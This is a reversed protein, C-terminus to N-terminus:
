SIADRGARWKAEEHEAVEEARRIWTNIEDRNSGYYRLATDVLAPELELYAAAEAISGGNDRVVGIIEWVDLGCGVVAARRGMPGDVFHIGPHESMLLGERLYREALATKPQAEHRSRRELLELTRRDPRISLHGRAVDSSVADCKLVIHALIQM